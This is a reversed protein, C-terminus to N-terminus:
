IQLEAVVGELFSQASSFLNSLQAFAAGAEELNEAEAMDELQAAVDEMRPIGMNACAGKVGHAAARMAAADEQHLAERCKKVGQETEVLFLQIMEYMLDPDNGTLDRLRWIEVLEREQEPPKEEDPEAVQIFRGLVEYLKNADLPKSLFDDMGASLCAERDDHTASATLAVIPTARRDDELQRIHATAEFGDMEPMRCDMLVVDYNGERVMNFAELGNEAMEFELGVKKLLLGGLRRNVAHDDVLLVRGGSWVPAATEAVAVAPSEVGIGTRLARRLSSFKAPKTVVGDVGQQKFGVKQNLPLLLIFHTEPLLERLQELNDPRYTATDLLLVDIRRGKLVHNSIGEMAAVMNPAHDCKPGLTEVEAAIIQRTSEHQEILFVKRGALDPDMDGMKGPTAEVAVSFSFTSGEGIKSAVWIKGGMMESLRKSIALGLGTGGFKRTTSADVQTFSEFLSNLRDEPIGIGTDSVHFELLVKGADSEALRCWCKVEGMETFKVANNMLNIIIQSLRAPDGNVYRPVDTDMGVLLELGKEQAKVALIEGADDLVARLDYDINELELKGAEIKSFDLIDNILALLIEGSNRVIETYERQEPSLSSELILGTMGIIGNLPTRIEHSMMALFDSKSRTAREAEEKARLLAEANRRREQEVEADKLALSLFQAIENLSYIEHETWKRPEYSGLGLLGILRGGMRIPVELLGSTGRTVYHPLLPRMMQDISIDEVVVPKGTKLLDRYEPAEDLDIPIRLFDGLGQVQTTQNIRLIHEDEISAFYVRLRKFSRKIEKVTAQVVEDAPTGGTLSTSLTNVLKLRSQSELLREETTVRERIQHEMESKIREFQRTNQILESQAHQLESQGQQIQSEQQRLRRNEYDLQQVARKARMENELSQRKLKEYEREFLSQRSLLREHEEEMKQFREEQEGAETAAQQEQDALQDLLRGGAFGAGTTMALALLLLYTIPATMVALGAQAVLTIGAASFVVGVGLGILAGRAARGKPIVM